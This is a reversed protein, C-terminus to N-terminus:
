AEDTGTAVKGANATNYATSWGEILRADASLFAEYAAIIREEADDSTLDGMPLVPFADDGPHEVSAWFHSFQSVGWSIDNPRLRALAGAIVEHNLVDRVTMRRVTVTLGHYDFTAGDSQKSM